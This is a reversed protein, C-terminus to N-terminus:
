LPHHPRIVQGPNIGAQLCVISSVFVNAHNASFRSNQADLRCNDHLNRDSKQDMFLCRASMRKRVQSAVSGGHIHLATNALANVYLLFLFYGCLALIRLILIFLFTFSQAPFGFCLARCLSLATIVKVPRSM